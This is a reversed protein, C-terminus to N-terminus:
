TLKVNVYIHQQRGKKNFFFIIVSEFILWCFSLAILQFYISGYNWMNQCAIEVIDDKVQKLYFWFFIKYMLNHMIPKINGVFYEKRVLLRSTEEWEGWTTESQMPLKKFPRYTPIRIESEAKATGEKSECGERELAESVCWARETTWGKRSSIPMQIVSVM